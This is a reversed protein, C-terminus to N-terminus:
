NITFTLPSSVGGGPPQNSVTVQAAGAAAIDLL